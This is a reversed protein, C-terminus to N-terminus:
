LISIIIVHANIVMASLQGYVHPCLNCSLASHKLGQLLIELGEGVILIGLLGLLPVAAVVVVVLVAGVVVPVVVLLPAAGLTGRGGVHAGVGVGDGGRRRRRRRGVARVVRGGLDDDAVPAAVAVAHLHSCKMFSSNM